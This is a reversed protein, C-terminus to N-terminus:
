NSREDSETTTTPITLDEKWTIGKNMMLVTRFIKVDSIPRIEEGHRATYDNPVMSGGQVEYRMTDHRFFLHFSCMLNTGKIGQLFVPERIRGSPDPGLFIANAEPQEFRVSLQEWLEDAQDRPPLDEEHLHAVTVAVRVPTKNNEDTNSNHSRAGKGM